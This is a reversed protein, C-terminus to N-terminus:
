QRPICATHGSSLLWRNRQRRCACTGSPAQPTMAGGSRAVGVVDPEVCLVDSRALLQQLAHDRLWDLAMEIADDGQEPEEAMEADAELNEGAHVEMPEPSKAFAEDETPVYMDM